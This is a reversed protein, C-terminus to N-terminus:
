DMRRLPTIGLLSWYVDMFIIFQRVFLLRQAAASAPLGIIRTTEYYDQFTKALEIGYFTLRHVGFDESMEAVMVPLLSMQKTLKMELETLHEVKAAPEFGLQKLKILLSNARAYAYMVYYYPNRASEESALDLDFDMQSDPSRMLTLFLAVPQTVADILEEVTIFQGLRKSIKVEKGDRLVRLWQYSAMRLRKEPFLEHVAAYVSPFQAIHDPGLVKIAYDFGRVGFINAHYAIDPAMYTPDGNRKIIVREPREDGLEGTKLWMAGDREFVLGKDKLLSLTRGFSGDVLLDEENFWVDFVIGMKKVAPEIYRQLIEATILQKAEADSATKLKSGFKQALETIYVGRYQREPTESLLGAEMMVSELLKSIQTGANNFYYERTVNYGARDLVRSLVEGIFGGRANGITTPGTPNASIYEVQVKVGQGLQLQAYEPTIDALVRHWVAPALTINIFGPGAVEARQIEDSATLLAAALEEAVARPQRKLEKAYVMAANTVYDGFKMEASMEVDMRGIDVGTGLTQTIVRGVLNNLEHSTMILGIIDAARM